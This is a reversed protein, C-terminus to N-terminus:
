IRVKPVEGCLAEEYKNDEVPNYIAMFLDFAKSGIEQAEKETIAKGTKRKFIGQFTKISKQSLQM